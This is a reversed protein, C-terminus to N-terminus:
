RLGNKKIKGNATKPLSGVLEVTHPVMFSELREACHRKIASLTLRNGPELVIFAKIAQGLNEDPIGIVVAERVGALNHLANEVEVPSVKEGRTKIIDDSRGQFYFFGEEDMVFWDQACLLREGPTRGPKLMKATEEPDEWYGSMVHPGRIHLIGAQKPGVEKGDPSRLFMETGPIAKGVSGPKKELLEPALFSVRKCETLGYMAFILANPFIQKLAPVYDPPLAAATNTVRLVSPFCLPCTKHMSLLTSFVTPVGPFVTINEKLIKAYVAGPYAFSRELVLTCGLATAMLLQYLGYDFALPLINLIREDPGLRLYEMISDRAFVMAQHTMTVGKPFGTSGSTFIIAAVDLPICAVATALPQAARLEEWFSKMPPQRPGQDARQIPLNSCLVAALSKCAPLIDQFEAKLHEDSVLVKASSKELLYKLKDAKTQPNILVFIGGAWLTAWLAIVAEPSNDAYIAVRDGRQLGISRLASACHQVHQFLQRYSLWGKHTILAPTDPSSHAAGLLSDQLL